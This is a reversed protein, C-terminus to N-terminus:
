LVSTVATITRREGSELSASCPGRWWDGWRHFWATLTHTNSSEQEDGTLRYVPEDACPAPHSSGAKKHRGFLRCCFFSAPGEAM